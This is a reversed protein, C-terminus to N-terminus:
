LSIQNGNMEAIFFETMMKFYKDEFLGPGHGAQPILFFQSRVGNKRLADYLKQSQCFPVLNDSDGHFILFPPDNSDVYTIPDALACKDPNKQIPGGILLSEPSDASNHNMKIDCSDMVLFDTPGFWDVVADVYSSYKNYDGINGELDVSASNITFKKVSGSTGALAALHGGSSFGTIGIFGTDIQYSKGNARIFRIAAKIDNIQAPFLADRSSRHNVAIVAFGSELLSKGYVKFASQKGNNGFWASGYVIL